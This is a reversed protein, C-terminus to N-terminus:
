FKKSPTNSCNHCTCGKECLIELLVATMHETVNLYKWLIVFLLMLPIVKWFSYTMSLFYTLDDWFGRVQVEDDEQTFRGLKDRRKQM